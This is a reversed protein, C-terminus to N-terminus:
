NLHREMFVDSYIEKLFNFKEELIDEHIDLEISLEILIEEKLMFNLTTIQSLIEIDSIFKLSSKILDRQLNNSNRKHKNKTM